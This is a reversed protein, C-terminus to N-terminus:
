SAPWMIYTWSGLRSCCDLSMAANTVRAEAPQHPGEEGEHQQEEAAQHHGGRGGAHHSRSVTTGCAAYTSVTAGSADSGSTWSATRALSRFSVVAESPARGGASASWTSGSTSRAVVTTTCLGAKSFAHRSDLRTAWLCITPASM